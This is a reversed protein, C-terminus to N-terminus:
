AGVLIMSCPNILHIHKTAIEAIDEPWDEWYMRSGVKDVIKACNGDKWEEVPFSLVGQSGTEDQSPNSTDPNGIGDGPATPNLDITEVVISELNKDNLEVQNIAADMREDHARLAGTYSSWDGDRTLDTAPM